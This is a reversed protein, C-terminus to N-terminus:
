TTTRRSAAGLSARGVEDAIGFGASHSETRCRHPSLVELIRCQAVTGHRDAIKREVQALHERAIADVDACARDRHDALGLLARIQDLTFGLVRSRRIFSLRHLHEPAYSRYNGETRVPALLLGIREYYRITEVKTDTARALEGITLRLEEAM